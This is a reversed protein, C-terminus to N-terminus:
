SEMDRAASDAGNRPAAVCRGGKRGYQSEKSTDHSRRLHRPRASAGFRLVPIRARTRQNDEHQGAAALSHGARNRGPHGAAYGLYAADVHDPGIKFSAPRIGRARAAALLGVAIATKGHGSSPAAVVVRPVASM